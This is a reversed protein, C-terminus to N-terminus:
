SDAATSGGLSGMGQCTLQGNCRIRLNPPPGAAPAVPRRAAAGGVRDRGGGRYTYMINYRYVCVIDIYIYIHIYTYM